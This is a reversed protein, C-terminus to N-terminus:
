LNQVVSDWTSILIILRLDTVDVSGLLFMIQLNGIGVVHSKEMYQNKTKKFPGYRTYIWDEQPGDPYPKYIEECWESVNGCMDYLGFRNPEHSEVPKTGMEFSGSFILAMGEPIQPVPSDTKDMDTQVFALNAIFSAIVFPILYKITM